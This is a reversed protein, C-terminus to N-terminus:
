LLETPCVRKGKYSLLPTVSIGVPLQFSVIMYQCSDHVECVCIYKVKRIKGKFNLWIFKFALSMIWRVVKLQRFLLRRTQAIRGTKRCTLPSLLSNESTGSGGSPPHRQQSCTVPASPIHPTRIALALQSLNYLRNVWIPLRFIAQEAYKPPM